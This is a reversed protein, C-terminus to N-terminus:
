LITMTFGAERKSVVEEGLYVPIFHFTDDDPIYGASVLNDAISQTINNFDWHRKSDRYFYFGVRLPFRKGWALSTWKGKHILLQPQVWKDYDLSLKSSIMFKGTWRKSNKKSPVNKGTITIYKPDTFKNKM